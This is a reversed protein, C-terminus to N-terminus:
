YHCVKVDPHKLSEDGDYWDIFCEDHIPWDTGTFAPRYAMQTLKSPKGCWGCIAQSPDTYRMLSKPQSM